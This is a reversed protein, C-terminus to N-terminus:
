HALQLILSRSERRSCSLRIDGRKCGIFRPVSAVLCLNVFVAFRAPDVLADQVMSDLQDILSELPDRKTRIANAFLAALRNIRSAQFCYTVREIAHCALGLVFAFASRYIVSSRISILSPFPPVINSSTERIAKM